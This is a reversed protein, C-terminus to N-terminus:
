KINNVANIITHTNHIYDLPRGSKGKGMKSLWNELDIVSVNGHNVQTKVDIWNLYFYSRDKSGDKLPIVNSLFPQHLRLDSHNNAAILLPEMNKHLVIGYCFLNATIEYADVVANGLLIPVNFPVIKKHKYKEIEESTLFPIDFTLNGCAICGNIPWNFEHCVFMLISSAKVILNFNKITCSDAGILITDSFVSLRLHNGAQLPLLLSKLRIIFKKFEKSFYHHPGEKIMQKFGLIDAFLLIRPRNIEWNPNLYENFKDM